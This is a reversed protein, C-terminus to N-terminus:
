LKDKEFLQGPQLVLRQAVEYNTTKMPLYAGQQWLPLQNDFNPSLTNGSQGPPTIFVSDELNALDVIQRYSPGASMTFTKFDYAGVNVTYSNGGFPVQLNFDPLVPALQKFRATHIKGWTPVPDGLQNLAEELARAADDLCGPATGPQNCTPDGNLIASVLYRPFNWYEQGVVAQPLRTLQTYWAEFVTAEVSDPHTNGDWSLLRDRWTSARESGLSLRELIPRFDHYLLSVQDLQIAQMDEFSLKDKSLILNNIREARYPEDFYGTIDYPYDRPSIKNNATVIFGSEPNLVQPLQEFPIFGQWDFEGTGLVPYLGTHEPQRIPIKGPAFYGINGERDAYVFNQSPAVYSQLALKFEEWNDARNIGLFAEITGDVPELSVWRLALTQNLGLANSIVPGYVSSEVQLLVPEAGKVRVTESRVQYPYVQDQYLYGQGDATEELIYLDQVDIGTNTVGWAIQRNHGILVGPLGPFTAGIVDLTPSKLHVQYWISPMQLNLHPDNALFPKGTTTRSGSLVWNNSAAIPTSLALDLPQLVEIGKQMTEPLEQLEVTSPPTVNLALQNLDNSQLITPADEPYPPLLEEIRNTSLGRALLQSRLLEVGLNASLNLSNTKILVLVDVPQWPEPEYDLLRFELPLTPATTLYSNVGATYVDIIHRVEPSLNQYASEAAQYLGLTRLYLDQRLTNEGLVESLRGAGLRRQYEMQWLRDQAHVFGQTFFLDNENQAQIHVIGSPERFVEVEDMLGLLNLSFIDDNTDAFLEDNRLSGFQLEGQVGNEAATPSNARLGFIDSTNEFEATVPNGATGLSSFMAASVLGTDQGLLMLDAESISFTGIRDFNQALLQDTESIGVARFNAPTPLTLGTLDKHGTVGLRLDFDMLATGEPLFVELNEMGLEWLQSQLRNM